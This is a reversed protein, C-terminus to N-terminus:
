ALLTTQQRSVVRRNIRRLLAIAINSVWATSKIIAPALGLLSMVALYGSAGDHGVASHLLAALAILTILLISATYFNM